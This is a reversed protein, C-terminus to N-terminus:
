PLALQQCSCHGAVRCRDVTPVNETCSYRVLLSDFSADALM